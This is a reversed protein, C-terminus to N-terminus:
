MGPSTSTSELGPKDVDAGDAVSSARESAVQEVSKYKLQRIRCEMADIDTRVGLYTPQALANTQEYAYLYRVEIVQGVAPMPQREPITCNGVSVWNEDHLIKMGISSKDNHRGVVVSCTEYFKRKRQSGDSNPRGPEYPADKLKYVVGERGRAMTDEYLRTKEHTSLATEVFVIADSDLGRLLMALSRLRDKAGIPRLNVGDQELIDFARLQEGVAEGDIVFKGPLSDAAARISEPFGVFLGKRNVARVGNDNKVVLMRNGDHKEQCFWAPDSNLRVAEDEDVANLLQCNIGSHEKIGAAAAYAPAQNGVVRYGESLQGAVVKDYIKKAALFSVAGNRTKSGQNQAGGHRGYTINVLWGDAVSVLSVGYDKDSRENRCHLNISEEVEPVETLLGLNFEKPM